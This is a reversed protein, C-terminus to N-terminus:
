RLGTGRDEQGLVRFFDESSLVDLPKLTSSEGARIIVIQNNWKSDEILPDDVLWFADLQYAPLSLYRVEVSDPVDDLSDIATNIHEALPSVLLERLSWSDPTAGLPKFRAYSLAQQDSKIQHHWLGTQRAIDPLAIGNAAEELVDPPLSWIAFTEGLDVRPPAETEGLSFFIANNPFIGLRSGIKQAVVELVEQPLQKTIAM